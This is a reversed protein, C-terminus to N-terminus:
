VLKLLARAEDLKILAQAIQGAKVMDQRQEHKSEYQGSLKEHLAWAEGEVHSVISGLKARAEDIKSVKTEM